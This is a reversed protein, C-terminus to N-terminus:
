ETSLNEATCSMDKITKNYSKGDLTWSYTFDFKENRALKFTTFGQQWDDSYFEGKGPLLTWSFKIGAKRWEELWQQKSKVTHTNGRADTYRWNSVDYTLKQQSTNQIITGFNCYNAIREIESKPFDHKGYIARIYDPILQILEISFGDGKSKWTFLGSEPNQTKITETAQYSLSLLCFLLLTLLITKCGPRM